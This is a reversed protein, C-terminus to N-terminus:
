KLLIKRIDNNGFEIVYLNGDIPDYAVGDPYKFRANSYTGNILGPTVTGTLTQFNFSSGVILSNEADPTYRIAHNSADGIFLVQSSSGSGYLSPYFGLSLSNPGFFAVGVKGNSFGQQNNPNGALTYTNVRINASLNGVAVVERIKNNGYDAVYAFLWESGNAMYSYLAIGRPSNFTAYTASGSTTDDTSGPSSPGALSGALTFVNNTGPDIMRIVNNRSDAVILMGSISDIAIGIPRDFAASIGNADRLAAAGSGAITTVNGSPDIKRIRNNLEDSVYLNGKSDFVLGSPGSFLAQAAPGDNYGPTTSGAFTTVVGAPTVKRIENNGYDAVFLNGNKDFAGNEPANFSAATGTGDAHGPSGSGAFSTVENAGVNLNDYTFFGANEVASQVSVLIAVSDLTASDKNVPVRVVMQTSNASVFSAKIFGMVVTEQTTDSLFGTGTITVLTGSGGHRPSVSIITVTVGDNNKNTCGQLNFLCVLMFFRIMPFRSFFKKM